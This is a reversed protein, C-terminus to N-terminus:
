YGEGTERLFKGSQLFALIQRHVMARRMIFTHGCPVVLMDQMGPLAASAVSVKGDSATTFIWPSLPNWSVNGAIVGLQFHAPGLSKPLSNEDTSLQQGAPGFFKKFLFTNRLFDVLESGHNPPALMVVRGISDGSYEKLYCRVVIGGMSHCVFHLTGSRKAATCVLPHLSRAAIEEITSKRSPYDLNYVLYGAAQLPKILPSMSGSGRALGHLLIVAEGGGTGAKHFVLKGKSM